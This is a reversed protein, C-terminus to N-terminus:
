EYTMTALIGDDTTLRVPNKTTRSFTVAYNGVSYTGCFVMENQNTYSPEKEKSRAMDDLVEAVTQFLSIAPADVTATMGAFSLTTEGGKTEWVLGSWQQPTETVFSYCSVFSRSFEGTLSVDERCITMTCTFANTFDDQRSSPACGVFFLLVLVLTATKKISQM